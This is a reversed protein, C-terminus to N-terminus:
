AAGSSSRKLRARRAKSGTRAPGARGRDLGNRLAHLVLEATSHLGLKRMLNEKHKRTTSLEIGLMDAIKPMAYGNAILALLEAERQTLTGSPQV